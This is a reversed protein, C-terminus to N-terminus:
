RRIRDPTLVSQQVGEVAPHTTAGSTLPEGARAASSAVALRIGHSDRASAQLLRLSIPPRDPDVEEQLLASWIDGRHAWRPGIHVRGERVLLSLDAFELSKLRLASAESMGFLVHSSFPLYRAADWAVLLLSHTLLLAERPPVFARCPHVIPSTSNAEGRVGPEAFLAAALCIGSPAREQCSQRTLCAFRDRVCEPLPFEDPRGRATESLHELLLSNFGAIASLVLHIPGPM